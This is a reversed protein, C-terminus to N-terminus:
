VPDERLDIMTRSVALWGAAGAERGLVWLDRGTARYRSGGREYVMAFAFSAVATEGVVDFQHDSEEFSQIKAHRCFDEFGAIFAEAGRTRGEFGPMVFAIEPHILESLDRPRGELWARNIRRLAEVVEERVTSGGGDM